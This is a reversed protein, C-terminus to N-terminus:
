KIIELVNSKPIKTYKRRNEDRWLPQLNKYHFLEIIEDETKASCVPIIHDIEWDGYNSWSMNEKFKSEMWSKVISYDAGLLEITKTKKRWNKRKLAAIIRCRCIAALRFLPNTAYRKKKIILREVRFKKAREADYIKRRERSKERYKKYRELIKDHNRLRYLKQNNNAKERNNQAWRRSKIATEEKHEELYKKNYKRIKDHNSLRYFMRYMFFMDKNDQYYQQKKTLQKNDIGIDSM